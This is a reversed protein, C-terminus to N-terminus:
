VVWAWLYRISIKNAIDHRFPIIGVDAVVLLHHNAKWDIIEMNSYIKNDRIEM